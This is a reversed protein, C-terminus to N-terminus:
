AQPPKALETISFGDKPRTYNEPSSVARYIPGPLASHNTYKVQALRLYRYPRHLDAVSQSSGVGLRHHAWETAGGHVCVPHLRLGMSSGRHVCVAWICDECCGRKRAGTTCRCPHVSKWRVGPRATASWRARGTRYS